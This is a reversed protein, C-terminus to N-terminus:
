IRFTHSLIRSALSLLIPPSNNAVSLLSFAPFYMKSKELFLLTATPLNQLSTNIEELSFNQKLYTSSVECCSTKKLQSTESKQEDACCHKPKGISLHTHKTKLCTHAYITQGSDAFLILLTIFLHILKKFLM